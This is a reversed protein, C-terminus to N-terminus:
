LVEEDSRGGEEGLGLRQAWTQLDGESTGTPSDGEREEAEAGAVSGFPYLSAEASAARRQAKEYAAYAEEHDKGTLKNGEEDHFFFEAEFAAKARAKKRREIASKARNRRIRGRRIAERTVRYHRDGQVRERGYCEMTPKWLGLVQLDEPTFWLLDNLDGYGSRTFVKDMLTMSVTRVEGTVVRRLVRVRVETLLSM